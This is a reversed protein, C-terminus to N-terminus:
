ELAIRAIGENLEDRWRKTLDNSAWVFIVREAPHHILQTAYQPMGGGKHIRAPEVHWGYSERPGPQFMKRYAPEARAALYFRYVNEVTTIMGGAGRTGWRYPNPTSEGSAVYGRAMRNAPVTEGRFWVNELGARPLVRTRIFTEYPIGSAKEVIAALVSYGANTYRYREGPASERAVSKVAAIFQDRDEGEGLDTGEPVLGATHAALHDITAAAKEPPFPGLWRELPDSTRLVGQEELQLIAAATFPKNLSAIEFLTRPGNRIQRERDAFGYGRHLVIRGDKAVLVTGSFGEREYGSLLAHLRDQLGSDHPRASTCGALLLLVVVLKKM